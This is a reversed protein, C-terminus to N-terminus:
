LQEETALGTAYSKNGIDELLDQLNYVGDFYKLGVAIHDASTYNAKEMLEEITATCFFGMPNNRWVGIDKIEMFCPQVRSLIYDKKLRLVVELFRAYFRTLPGPAYLTKKIRRFDNYAQIYDSREYKEEPYTADVAQKVLTIIQDVYMKSIDPLYEDPNAAPFGTEHKSIYSDLSSEFFSHGQDINFPHAYATTVYNIYPHMISDLSYHCLWGLCFDKQANTQAFRFMNQMFLGTRNTHLLNSLTSMNQTRFPDYKRYYYFVDPGNCGLIFTQYNRPKYNAIKLACQANYKHAYSDPM